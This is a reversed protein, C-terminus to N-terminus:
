DRQSPRKQADNKQSIASKPAIKPNETISGIWLEFEQITLFGDILPMEKAPDLHLRELGKVVRSKASPKPTKIWKGSRLDLKGRYEKIARKLKYLNTRMSM